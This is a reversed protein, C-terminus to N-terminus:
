AALHALIIAFAAGLTAILLWKTRPHKEAFDWFMKSLTMGFLRVCIVEEIGLLIGFGLVAWGWVPLGSIFFSSASVLVAGVIWWGSKINRAM